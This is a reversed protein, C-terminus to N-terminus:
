DQVDSNTYAYYIAGLDLSVPNRRHSVPVYLGAGGGYAFSADDFNTTSAFREGSSSGGVARRSV